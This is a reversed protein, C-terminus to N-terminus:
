FSFFACASASDVKCASSENIPFSIEPGLSEGVLFADGVDLVWGLDAIVDGGLEDFVM